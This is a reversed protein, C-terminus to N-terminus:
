IHILSLNLFRVNRYLNGDSGRILTIGALLLIKHLILKLLDSFRYKKFNEFSISCKYHEKLGFILCLLEIRFKYKDDVIVFIYHLKRGLKIYIRDRNEYSM